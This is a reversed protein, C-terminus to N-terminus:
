SEDIRPKRPRRRSRGEHHQRGYSPMVVVCRSPEEGESETKVGRFNQLTMHIVRREWSSMPEMRITVGRRSADKAASRALRVLTDERRCKYGGCDFRIKPLTQDQRYILNTLFEFAKLTDGHRGIMIASDEGDINIMCEDDLDINLQMGCMEVATRVFDRAQLYMLPKHSTVRVKMKKGLLGFLRSTEEIVESDVDHESVGWLQAAKACASTVDQADLVITEREPLRSAAIDGHEGTMLEGDDDIM